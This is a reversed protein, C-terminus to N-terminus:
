EWNNFPVDESFLLNKCEGHDSILNKLLTRREITTQKRVDEGKYELVDYAVFVVPSSELIKKSVKKRGIRKQLMNFDLPVGEKYALIEGDMVVDCGINNKLEDFEPFKDTILEEGRSWVFIEGQRLIIQGRIGDWKREAIWDSPDGLGAVNGEVAYALYFPYPKSIQDLSSESLILSEFDTKSPDWNGMLRHSIANEEQGTVKALAKVILKTSVGIRFGGTILKNFLFREDRNMQSWARSIYEKKIEDETKHLEIVEHIVQHLNKTTDSVQDEIVLSITEALDGVIHYSEEFLWLPIGSIEAAWERLQSTKVTRKPRKHTFLAITWIKDKDEATEFYEALASVKAKTSNTRDIKRFLNAFNKM